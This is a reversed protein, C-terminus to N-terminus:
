SLSHGAFVVFSSARAIAARDLWFFAYRDLKDEVLLETLVAVFCM